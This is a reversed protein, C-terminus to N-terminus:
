GAIRVALEPYILQAGYLIDFEWAVQKRQRVLEVRLSLGTMNDVMSSIDANSAEISALPRTAYTFANRQFALNVVHTAKVTIVALDSAIVQLGPKIAVNVGASTLTQAGTVAYTQSDGAITFIDGLAVTGLAGKANMLLTSVGIATTSGVLVSAATGKTHTQVNQSMFFDLGFKRGIEGEIKVPRDQTKEVDSFAALQLAQAEATPDLVVRRDNMPALNENLVKRALPATAVTSFPIVGATGVFGFILPFKNHIFKDVDNALARAAEEVQLPLFHRNRDIEVMEKDTLHFDTVKWQDLPLQVKGLTKSSATASGQVGTTVASVAQSVSKPIDITDGQERADGQYDVSVLRPMIAAERLVLLGRALIKDLINTHSNAM